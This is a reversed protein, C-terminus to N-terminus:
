AGKIQEKFSKSVKDLLTTFEQKLLSNQEIIWSIESERGKYQELEQATSNRVETLNIKGQGFNEFAGLIRILDEYHTDEILLASKEVSSKTTKLQKSFKKLRPIEVKEWLEDAIQKLDCLSMWLNNYLTFQHESYRFFISKSKELESKRVELETQYETKVGELERQYKAKDKELDTLYKAKIEELERLYRAKDKELLKNALIGGSWKSLAFVIASTGGLAVVIAALWEFAAKLNLEFMYM